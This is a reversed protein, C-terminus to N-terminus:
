RQQPTRLRVMQAAVAFIGIGLVLLALPHAIDLPLTLWVGAYMLGTMVWVRGFYRQFAQVRAADCSLESLPTLTKPIRNGMDAFFLGVLVMTVRRAWIKEDAPDFLPLFRIIAPTAMMLAAFGLARGIEVTAARL